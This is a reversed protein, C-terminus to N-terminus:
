LRWASRLPAVLRNAGGGGSARGGVAIKCVKQEIKRFIEMRGRREQQSKYLSQVGRKSMEM